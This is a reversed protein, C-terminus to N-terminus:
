PITSTEVQVVGVAGFITKNSRLNTATGLQVVSKLTRPKLIIDCNPLWREGFQSIASM